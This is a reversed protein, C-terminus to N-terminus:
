LQENSQEWEGCWMDPTVKKVKVEIDDAQLLPIKYPM